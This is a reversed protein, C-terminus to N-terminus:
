IRKETGDRLNLTRVHNNDYGSSANNVRSVELFFGFKGPLRKSPMTPDYSFRFLGGDMANQWKTELLNDFPSSDGIIDKKSSKLEFVFDADIYNFSTHSETGNCEMQFTIFVFLTLALPQVRSLNTSSVPSQSM